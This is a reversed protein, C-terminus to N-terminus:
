QSVSDGLIEAWEDFAKQAGDWKGLGSFWGERGGQRSDTVRVLTQKTVSDSITAEISAGGRMPNPVLSGPLIQFAAYTSTVDTLAVKIVAVNSAPQPIPSHHSGLGRILKARFEDALERVEKNDVRRLYDGEVTYVGIDGIYYSSYRRLVGPSKEEIKLASGASPDLPSSQYHRQCGGVFIATLVSVLFVALRHAHNGLAM